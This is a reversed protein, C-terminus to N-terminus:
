LRGEKGKFMALHWFHRQDIEEDMGMKMRTIGKNKGKSIHM